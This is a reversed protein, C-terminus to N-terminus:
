IAEVADIVEASELEAEEDGLKFFDEDVEYLPVDRKRMGIKHDILLDLLKEGNILGIPPAGPLLAAETCGKSFDGLTIITGRLAKYYHLAGRLQDIVPRQINLQHRKVQIVETFTTIGFQVTAVVDVGKDGSQKTVNVDVYNMAELLDRVLHEFRYPHMTSLRVRLMERNSDNFTKIARLVERRPDDVAKTAHAAYTIGQQTIAYTNADRTVFDREVLNLLRYRLTSKFTADTSSQSHELLFEGWEALLDGRKARTKTALIALLQPLGEAEDLDRVVMVDNDLFSQGRESLRYVCESDPVLLEYRNIFFYGGYIHRPNVTGNTEVWIRRALNAQEGSLRENIWTGPESWDVTNQPTGTQEDITRIMSKLIAQPVSPLIALLKRVTSYLPFHPTRVKNKHDDVGRRTNWAKVAAASRVAAKDESM